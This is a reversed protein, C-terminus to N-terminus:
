ILAKEATMARAEDWRGLRRSCCLWSLLLSLHPWGLQGTAQWMAYPVASKWRFLLLCWPNRLVRTHLARYYLCLPFLTKSISQLMKKMEERGAAVPGHFWHCENSSLFPLCLRSCLPWEESKLKLNLKIKRDVSSLLKSLWSQSFSFHMKWFRFSM